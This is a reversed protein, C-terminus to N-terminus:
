WVCSRKPRVENMVRVEDIMWASVVAISGVLLRGESCSRIEEIFVMSQRAKWKRAEMPAAVTQVYSPELHKYANESVSM